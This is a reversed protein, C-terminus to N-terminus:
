RFYEWVGFFFLATFVRGILRHIFIFRQLGLTKPPHWKAEMGMNFLSPTFIDLSLALRRLTQNVPWDVGELYQPKFFVAGVIVFALAIWVIRLPKRGYGVGLDWFVLTPWTLPNGLGGWWNSLEWRKMAIFAEDAQREQGTRNLYDQLDLYNRKYYSSREVWELLPTRALLGYEINKKWWTLKGEEIRAFQYTMRALDLNERQPWQTQAIELSAFKSGRLDAKGAIKVQRLNTQGKVQLNWALFDQIHLNELSLKSEVATRNLDLQFIELPHKDAGSITLNFFLADHCIVQGKIRVAELVAGQAVDAKFEGGIKAGAFDVPGCFVADTFKALQGVTLGTFDTANKSRFEAGGANFQGGVSSGAFIAPGEFVAGEFNIISGVKLGSASIPKKCNTFKSGKALFELSIVANDFEVLGEFVAKVFKAVHGVKVGAFLANKGFKAEYCDLDENVEVRTFHANNKFITGGFNATQGIKSHSFNAVKDFTAGQMLLTGDIKANRFHVPGQFTASEFLANTGVKLFDFHCEEQFNSKIPVVGKPDYPRFSLEKNILSQNFNVAGEFTSGNFYAVGEIKIRLFNAEKKFISNKIQLNKKFNSDRFLVVNNFVCKLLEVDCSIEASALDIKDSVIANRLRVGHYHIKLGPSKGTLLAEMFWGRITRGGEDEGFREQLDAVQGKAVQQLVWAEQPTLRQDWAPGAALGALIFALMIALQRLKGM